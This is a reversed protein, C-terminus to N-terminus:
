KPPVGRAGAAWQEARELQKALHAASVLLVEGEQRLQDAFLSVNLGDERRFRVIKVTGKKGPIAEWGDVLFSKPVPIFDGKAQPFKKEVDIKEM